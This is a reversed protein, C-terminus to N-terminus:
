LQRGEFDRRLLVALQIKIAEMDTDRGTEKELSTMQVGSLGCPVMLNFLSLDNAINIAMGHRTVQRSVRVGISAIKREEIWLGPYGQRRQCTLGLEALLDIGIAELTRIYESVGLGLQQLNLIPYFVLQGPNHLTAGGGRRIQVLEIGRQALTETGILLKNASQRAGLTIVPPHEVILVTDGIEGARRQENLQRQLDLVENYAARGLDRITLDRNDTPQAMPPCPADLM